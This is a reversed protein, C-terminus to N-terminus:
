IEVFKVEEHAPIVKEPIDEITGRSIVPKDYEYFYDSFYSGSRTVPLDFFLNYKDIISEDCPYSEIAPNYSVLQYTINQYQYKGEDDWSSEDVEIVSYSIGDHEVGFGDEMWNHECFDGWINDMSNKVANVLEDSAHKCEKLEEVTIMNKGKEIQPFYEM